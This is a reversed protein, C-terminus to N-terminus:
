KIHNVWPLRILCSYSFSTQWPSSSLLSAHIVLGERVSGSILFVAALAGPCSHQPRSPQTGALRSWSHCHHAESWFTSLALRVPLEFLKDRFLVIIRLTCVSKVYIKFVTDKFINSYRQIYKFSIDHLPKSLWYSFSLEAWCFFPCLIYMYIFWLPLSIFQWPINKFM